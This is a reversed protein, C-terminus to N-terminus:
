SECDVFHFFTGTIRGRHSGREPLSTGAADTLELLPADDGGSANGSPTEDALFHDM